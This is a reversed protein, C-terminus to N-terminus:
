VGRAVYNVVVDCRNGTQSQPNGRGCRLVFMYLEPGNNIAVLSIM